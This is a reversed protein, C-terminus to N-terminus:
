KKSASSLKRIPRREYLPIYLSVPVDQLHQAPVFKRDEVGVVFSEEPQL